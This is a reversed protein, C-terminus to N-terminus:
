CYYTEDNQLDHNQIETRRLYTIKSTTRIQMAHGKETCGTKFPHRIGGLGTITTVNNDSGHLQYM